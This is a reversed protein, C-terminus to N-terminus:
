GTYFSSCIVGKKLDSRATGLLTVKIEAPNTPWWSDSPYPAPNIEVAEELSRACVVASEYADYDFKRLNELLYLNM